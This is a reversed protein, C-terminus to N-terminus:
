TERRLKIKTFVAGAMCGAMAVAIHLAFFGAFSQNEAIVSTSSVGVNMYTILCFLLGVMLIAAPVSKVMTNKVKSSLLFQLVFFVAAIGILVGYYELFVEL